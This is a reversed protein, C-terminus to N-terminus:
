ILPPRIGYKVPSDNWGGLDKLDIRTICKQPDTFPRTFMEVEIVGTADRFNAWHEAYDQIYNELWQGLHDYYSIASVWRLNGQEMVQMESEQLMAQIRTDQCLNVFENLLASKEVFELTPFIAARQIDEKLQRKQADNGDPNLM